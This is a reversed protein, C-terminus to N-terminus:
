RVSDLAIITHMWYGFAQNLLWFLSRMGSPWGISVDIELKFTLIIHSLRIKVYIVIPFFNCWGVCWGGLVLWVRQNAWKLLLMGKMRRAVHSRRLVSTPRVGPRSERLGLECSLMWWKLILLLLFWTTKIIEHDFRGVITILLLWYILRLVM